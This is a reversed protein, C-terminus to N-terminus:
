IDNNNADVICLAAKDQGPQHRAGALYRRWESDEGQGPKHTCLGSIAAMGRQM